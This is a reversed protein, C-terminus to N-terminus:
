LGWQLRVLYYWHEKESTLPLFSPQAFKDQSRIHDNAVQLYLDLSEFLNRKLYATWKIDDGKYLGAAKNRRYDVMGDPLHPIPLTNSYQQKKNDPFSNPYYQLQLTLLDLLGFTPISAGVMV